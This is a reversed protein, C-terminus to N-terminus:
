ETELARRDRIKADMAQEFFRHTGRGDSKARYLAM